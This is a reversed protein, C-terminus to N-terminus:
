IETAHFTLLVFMFCIKCKKENKYEKIKNGTMMGFPFRKKKPLM